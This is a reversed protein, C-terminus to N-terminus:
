ERYFLRGNGVELISFGLFTRDLKCGVLNGSSGDMGAFQLRAIDAIDKPKNRWGTEVTAEAPQSVEAVVEAVVEVTIGTPEEVSEGAIEAYGHLSHGSQVKNLGNRDSNARKECNHAAVLKM